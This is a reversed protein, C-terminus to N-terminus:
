ELYIYGNRCLLLDPAVQCPKLYFASFSKIHERNKLIYHATDPFWIFKLLEYLQEDYTDCKM